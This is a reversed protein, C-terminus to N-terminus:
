TQLCARVEASQHATPVSSWLLITQGVRATRRGPFLFGRFGPVGRVRRNATETRAQKAIEKPLSDDGFILIQVANAGTPATPFVVEGYEQFNKPWALRQVFQNPNPTFRPDAVPLLPQTQAPSDRRAVHHVYMGLKELCPRASKVVNKSGGGCGAAAVALLLLGARWRM